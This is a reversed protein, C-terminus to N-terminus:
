EVMLVGGIAWFFNSFASTHPIRGINLAAMTMGVIVVSFLAFLESARKSVLWEDSIFRWIFSGPYM